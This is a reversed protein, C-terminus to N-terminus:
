EVTLNAQAMSHTLALCTAIASGPITSYEREAVSSRLRPNPDNDDSTDNDTLSKSENTPVEPKKEAM